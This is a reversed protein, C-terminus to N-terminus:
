GEVLKQLYFTKNFGLWAWKNVYQRISESSCCCLQSTAVSLMHDVCGLSHALWKCLFNALEMRSAGETFCDSEEKIANQERKM